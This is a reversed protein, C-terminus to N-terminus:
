PDTMMQQHGVSVYVHNEEDGSEPIPFLGTIPRSQVFQFGDDGLCWEIDQASGFHSEIRRGLQALRVLQADTLAPKQRWEREIAQEPAGGAPSAHIALEKTAITKAVVEGDRVKYADANVLGSVLAEGLGFSAQVSVVKRNSTVPDATFLIGAAKPFA